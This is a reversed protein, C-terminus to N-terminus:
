VSHKKDSNWITKFYPFQSTFSSSIVNLIIHTFSPVAHTVTVRNIAQRVLENLSWLRGVTYIIESLRPSFMIRTFYETWSSRHSFIVNLIFWHTSRSYLLLICPSYATYQCYIRKRNKGRSIQVISWGYACRAYTEYFLASANPKELELIKSEDDKIRIIINATAQKLM